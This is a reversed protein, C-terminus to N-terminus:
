PGSKVYLCVERLNARTREDMQVPLHFTTNKTYTAKPLKATPGQALATGGSVLGSVLVLLKLGKATWRRLSNLEIMLREGVQSAPFPVKGPRPASAGVRGNGM